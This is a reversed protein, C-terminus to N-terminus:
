CVVADFVVDCVAVCAANCVAVCVAVCAYQHLLERASVQYVVVDFVVDCAAVHVAVCEAVCAYQHLLERV